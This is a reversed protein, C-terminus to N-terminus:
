PMNIIKRKSTYLYLVNVSLVNRPKHLFNNTPSYINDYYHKARLNLYILETTSICSWLTRYYM